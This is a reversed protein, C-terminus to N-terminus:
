VFYKLRLKRNKKKKGRRKSMFKTTLANVESEISSKNSDSSTSKGIKIDRAALSKYYKRLKRSYEENSTFHIKKNTFIIERKYPIIGAQTMEYWDLGLLIDVEQHDICVLDLLYSRDQIKFLCIKAIGVLKKVTNDATKYLKESEELKINFKEVTNLGIISNTAGSDFAIKANFSNSKVNIPDVCVIADIVFLENM